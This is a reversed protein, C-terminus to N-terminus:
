WSVISSFQEIEGGIVRPQKAPMTDGGEMSMQAEPRDIEQQESAQASEKQKQGSGLLKEGQEHQESRQVHTKKSQQQEQRSGQVPVNQMHTKKSQHQEKKGSRQAKQSRHHNQQGSIQINQTNESQHQKQQMFIQIKEYHQQDLLIAQKKTSSEEKELYDAKMKHKQVITNILPIWKPLEIITNRVESALKRARRFKRKPKAGRPHSQLKTVSDSM